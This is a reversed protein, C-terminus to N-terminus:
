LPVGIGAFRLVVVVSVVTGVVLLAVALLLVLGVQGVSDRDVAERRPDPTRDADDPFRPLSTYDV